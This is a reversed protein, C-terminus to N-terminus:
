TLGVRQATMLALWWSEPGARCIRDRGLDTRAAVRPTQGRGPRSPEPREFRCRQGCVALRGRDPAAGHVAAPGHGLAGSLPVLPIARDKGPDLAMYASIVERFHYAPRDTWVALRATTPQMQATEDMNKTDKLQCRVTPVSWGAWLTLLAAGLMRRATM